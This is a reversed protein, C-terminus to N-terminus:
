CRIDTERASEDITAADLGGVGDGLDEFMQLGICGNCASARRAVIKRSRNERHRDIEPARFAPGESLRRSLGADANHLEDMLRYRCQVSIKSGPRVKAALQRAQLSPRDENEVPAAAGEVKRDTADGAARDHLDPIETVIFHAAVLKVFPESVVQPFLVGGCMADFVDRGEFSRAHRRLQQVLAFDQLDLQGVRLGVRLIDNDPVVETDVLVEECGYGARFEFIQAGVNDSAPKSPDIFDQLLRLEGILVNFEAEGGAPHHVHRGNSIAERLPEDAPNGPKLVAIPDDGLARGPDRIIPQPELERFRNFDKDRVSGSPSRVM